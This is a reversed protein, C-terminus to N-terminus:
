RVDTDQVTDPVAPQTRKTRKFNDKYFLAAGSLIVAGGILTSPGPIEGALLAGWLSAMFPLTFMYNSTYSTKQAKSLAVTWTVYGVASSLVGLIGLYVFQIPPASQIETIAAPSFVALMLTGAFISYISTQLPSYIMSLKRQLINYGSLLIAGVALWLVGGNADFTVGIFLLLLIGVFEIAVAAWQYAKLHEKYFFQALLATIVPVSTLVVSGTASTVLRSGLNFVIMYLFFGAAGAAFFWPIDKRKPPKIKAILVFPLLSLSAVGYRLFAFAFPSFHQLALRTLVYTLSWLVITIIAYIHFSGKLKM